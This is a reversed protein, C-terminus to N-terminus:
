GTQVKALFENIYINIRETLIKQLPIKGTLSKYKDLMTKAIDDLRMRLTYLYQGQMRNFVNNDKERDLRASERVFKQYLDFYTASAKNNFEVQIDAM